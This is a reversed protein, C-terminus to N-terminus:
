QKDRKVPVLDHGVSNYLDVLARMSPDREGRRWAIISRAAYGSLHALAAATLHQSDAIDFVARVIPLAHQSPAKRAYGRKFSELDSLYNAPVTQPGAGAVAPARDPCGEGKSLSVSASETRM